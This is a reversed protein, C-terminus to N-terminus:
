LRATVEDYCLRLIGDHEKINNARILESHLILHRQGDKLDHMAAGITVAPTSAHGRDTHIVSGEFRDDEAREPNLSFFTDAEGQRLYLRVNSHHPDSALLRSTNKLWTPTHAQAVFLVSDINLRQLFHQLQELATESVVPHVPTPYELVVRLTHPVSGSHQLRLAERMGTVGLRMMTYQDIVVGTVYRTIPESIVLDQIQGSNFGALPLYLGVRRGEHIM